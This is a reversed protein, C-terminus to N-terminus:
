GPNNSLYFVLKDRTMEAAPKFFCGPQTEYAKGDDDNYSQILLNQLPKGYNLFEYMITISDSSFRRFKPQLIQVIKELWHM